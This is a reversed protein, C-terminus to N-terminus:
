YYLHGIKEAICKGIVLVVPGAATVFKLIKSSLCKPVESKISTVLNVAKFALQQIKGPLEAFLNYAEKILSGYCVVNMGCKKAKDQISSVFSMVDKIESIIIDVMTQAQEIQESACAIVEAMFINKFKEIEQQHAAICETVDIGLIEAEEQLHGIIGLIKLVEEQLKVKANEILNAVFNKM